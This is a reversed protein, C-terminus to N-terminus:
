VMGAGASLQPLRMPKGSKLSVVYYYFFDAMIVVHVFQAILVFVGVLPSSSSNSLEKFSSSWFIMEIIRAIGLASVFHAHLTEVTFNNSAAQRQFQYLQPFIAISELYMAFTWCVDSFFEKNLNPHLFVALVLPPALLWVVGLHDPVHMNGFSDSQADYTSKFQKQTLFLSVGVLGLSSCEVLHYFWDGSKDWPLYGEHRVISLMRFAFVCAYAQLSKVSIGRCSGSAFMKYNLLAFSFTRMLAAYTLLFSFDGNSVLRYVVFSFLFFGGWISINTTHKSLGGKMKDAPDREM